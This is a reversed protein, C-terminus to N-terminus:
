KVRDEEQENLEKLLKHFSVFLDYVYRDIGFEDFDVTAMILCQEAFYSAGDPRLSQLDELLELLTPTIKIKGITVPTLCDQQKAM